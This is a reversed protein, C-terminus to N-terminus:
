KKPERGSLKSDGKETSRGYSAGDSPNAGTKSAQAPDVANPTTDGGTPSANPSTGTEKLRELTAGDLRGTENLGQAKQYARVAATTKAGAIGDIPGPDYGAEKLARQAHEVEARDSAEAAVTMTTLAFLLTGTALLARTTTM